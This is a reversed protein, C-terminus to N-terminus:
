KVKKIQHLFVGYFYCKRKKKLYVNMAYGYSNRNLECVFFDFNIEWLYLQFNRSLM